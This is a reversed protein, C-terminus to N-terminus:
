EPELLHRKAREFEEDTISGREHLRALRSLREEIEAGTREPAPPSGGFGFGSLLVMGGLVGIAGAVLFLTSSSGSDPEEDNPMGYDSRVDEIMQDASDRGKEQAQLVGGVALALIGIVLLWPGVRRRAEPDM